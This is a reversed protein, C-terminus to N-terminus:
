GPIEKVIIDTSFPLVKLVEGYTIDGEFLDARISGANILGIEGKGAARIADAVLDGLSVEEM